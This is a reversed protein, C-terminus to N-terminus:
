AKANKKLYISSIQVHLLRSEPVFNVLGSNKKGNAWGTFWAGQIM